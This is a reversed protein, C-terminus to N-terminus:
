RDHESRGAAAQTEIQASAWAVRAGCALVAALMAQLPLRLPGLGLTRLAGHWGSVIAIVAGISRQWRRQLDLVCRGREVCVAVGLLDGVALGGPLDDCFANRDGKLWLRCAGNRQECRVVRHVIPQAGRCYLVIAGRRVGTAAIAQIALRDGPHLFPAMSGSTVTFRVAGGTRLREAVLPGLVAPPPGIPSASM